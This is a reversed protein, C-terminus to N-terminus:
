YSISHIVACKAPATVELDGMFCIDTILKFGTTARERTYEIGEPSAVKKLGGNSRLTFASMDLFYIIDDDMEQIGVLSFGGRVGTINIETWNFKDAKTSGVSVKFPSKDTEILKMITGLHKFSMVCKSPQAAKARIKIESWADFLKDLINTASISAGSVNVAQLYPYALKSQGHLNASGGNAASLLASRLSNFENGNSASQGVTIVGDHYFKASQAVTYASVDAAAGGKTASLTVSKDNINIAIVYYEAAGTNGDALLVLQDIEFRDVKDVVVVGGATGNVTASAFHPGSMLNISLVMKMYSMFDDLQDPLLRLFNQESIKGHQMLDTEDFILSGWAEKYGSMKGRVYKHQGISGSATLGGFKVSTAGAGKFPVISDGGLWSMDKEVNQFFWDRKVLEENLLSNPLYENLM